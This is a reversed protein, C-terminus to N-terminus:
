KHIRAKIAELKESFMVPMGYDFKMWDLLEDVDNNLDLMREILQKKTLKMLEETKYQVSGKMNISM